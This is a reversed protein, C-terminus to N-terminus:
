RDNLPDFHIHSLATVVMSAVSAVAEELNEDIKEKKNQKTKNKQKAKNLFLVCPM